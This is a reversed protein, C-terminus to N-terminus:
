KSSRAYAILQPLFFHFTTFSPFMLKLTKIKMWKICKAWRFTYVFHSFMPEFLLQSIQSLFIWILSLFFFLYISQYATHPQKKTLCYLWCMVLLLQVLNCFGVDHLLPSIKSLFFNVFLGVYNCFLCDITFVIFYGLNTLDYWTSSKM